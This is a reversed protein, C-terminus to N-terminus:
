FPLDGRKYHNFEKRLDNIEQTLRWEEKIALKEISSPDCECDKIIDGMGDGRGYGCGFLEAVRRGTKSEDHSWYHDM